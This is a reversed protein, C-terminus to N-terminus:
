RVWRQFAFTLKWLSFKYHTSIAGAETETEAVMNPLTLSDVATVQIGCYRRFNGGSWAVPSAERSVYRQVERECGFLTPLIHGGQGAGNNGPVTHVARDNTRHVDLLFVLSTVPSRFVQRSRELVSHTEGFM